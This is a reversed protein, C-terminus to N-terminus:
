RGRLEKVRDDRIMRRAKRLGAEDSVQFTFSRNDHYTVPSGQDRQGERQTVEVRIPETRQTPVDFPSRQQQLTGGFVGGSAFRQSPEPRPLQVGLVGASDRQLPLTTASGDARMARVGLTGHHTPRLPVIAEPGKEGAEGLPFTTPQNLVTGSGGFGAGSAFRQVVDGPGAFANGKASFLKFLLPALLGIGFGLFPLVASFGAGAAGAAGAATAAQAGPSSAAGAAGAAALGAGAGVGPALVTGVGQGPNPPPLTAGFSPPQQGPPALVGSFGAGAGAGAASVPIATASAARAISAQQAATIQLQAAQLQTAAAQQQTISATQQTTAATQETTAKVTDAPKGVLSQLGGSFLDGIGRELPKLTLQELADNSLRQLLEAGIKKFDGGSIAGSIADGLSSTIDRAFTRGAEDADQLAQLTAHLAEIRGREADTLKRHLDLELRRVDILADRDSAGARLVDAEAQLDKIRAQIANRDDIAQGKKIDPTIAGAQEPTLVGGNQQKAQLLVQAIQQQRPPLAAVQNSERISRVFDALNTLGRRTSDDSSPPAEPQRFGSLDPQKGSIEARLQKRLDDILGQVTGKSDSIGGAKGAASELAVVANSTPITIKDGVQALAKDIKGALLDAIAAEDLKITTKAQEFPASGFQGSAFAGTRLTDKNQAIEKQLEGFLLQRINLGPAHSLDLAGNLADPRLGAQVLTNLGVQANPEKQIQLATARLSSQLGIANSIQGSLDASRAAQAYTAALDEYTKKVRDAVEAQRQLALNHEDTAKTLEYLTTTVGALIAGFGIIPNAVILGGLLRLAGGVGAVGLATTVGALASSVVGTEREFEGLSRTASTVEDVIGQLGGRFGNDGIALTVEQFASQLSLLSGRLTADQARALAETSGQADQNAATLAEVKDVNEALVLAAAVNRRGFIAAADGAHERSGLQAKNLRELIEVLSHAAPNVDQYAIGLREFAQRASDTPDALALLVGRVNTGALSAQIGADGLAGIAASTEEVSNGLAKAVPGAYKMAEALQTVNTNSRNSTTTLTDVIRGTEDAQLGFAKLINSTIDAASGLDILATQALNLTPRIAAVAEDATFGARALFLLGESVQTATFRTTAGLTRATKELEGLQGAAKVADTGSRIAVGGLTVLSQEFDAITSVSSRVITIASFAGVLQLFQRAVNSSTRGLKEIRRDADSTAQGMERAGRKIREKAQDFQQAGQQAERADIAVRLSAAM